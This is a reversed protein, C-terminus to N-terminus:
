LEQISDEVKSDDGVDISDEASKGQEVNKVVENLFLNNYSIQHRKKPKDLIMGMVWGLSAMVISAPIVKELTGLVSFYDLSMTELLSATGMILITFSAFVAALRKKQDQKKKKM